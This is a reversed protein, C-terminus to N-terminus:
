NDATSAIPMNTTEAPEFFNDPFIDPNVPWLGTNKFCNCANQVSATKGYAQNFLYGIQLATVVRGPHNRLWVSIEQKFNTKLPGHFCVDLPQM